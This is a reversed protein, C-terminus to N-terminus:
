LLLCTFIILNQTPIRCYIAYMFAQWQIFYFLMVKLLVFIMNYYWFEEKCWRIYLILSINMNITLLSRILHYFLMFETSQKRKVQRQLENVINEWGRKSAAIEEDKLRSLQQLAAKKEEEKQHTLDRRM